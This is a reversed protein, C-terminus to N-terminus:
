QANQSCHKYSYLLFALATIAFLVRFFVVLVDGALSGLVPMNCQPCDRAAVPGPLHPLAPSPQHGLPLPSM